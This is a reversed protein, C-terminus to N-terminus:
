FHTFALLKHPHISTNLNNLAINSTKLKLKIQINKHSLNKYKNKKRLMVFQRGIVETM